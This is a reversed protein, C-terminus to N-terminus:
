IVTNNKHRKIKFRDSQTSNHSAYFRNYDDELDSTSYQTILIDLLPIVHKQFKGKEITIHCEMAFTSLANRVTQATVKIGKAIRRVDFAHNHPQLNHEKDRAQSKLQRIYYNALLYYTRERRQNAINKAHKQRTATVESTEHKTIIYRNIHDIIQELQNDNINTNINERDFYAILESKDIQLIKM